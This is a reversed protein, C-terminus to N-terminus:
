IDEHTGATTLARALQGLPYGVGTRIDNDSVGAHRAGGGRGGPNCGPAARRSISGDRIDQSGVPRCGAM